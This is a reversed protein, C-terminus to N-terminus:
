HEWISNPQNGLLAEQTSFYCSAVQRGKFYRADKTSASRFLKNKCKDILGTETLRSRSPGWTRRRSWARNPQLYVSVNFHLLCTSLSNGGFDKSNSFLYNQGWWNKRENEQCSQNSTNRKWGNWTLTQNNAHLRQSHWAEIIDTPLKICPCM